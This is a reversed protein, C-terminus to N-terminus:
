SIEPLKLTINRMGEPLLHNEQAYGHLQNLQLLNGKIRRQYHRHGYVYDEETEPIGYTKHAVPAVVIGDKFM